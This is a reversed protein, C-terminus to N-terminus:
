AIIAGPLAMAVSELQLRCSRFAGGFGSALVDVEKVGGTGTLVLPPAGGYGPQPYLVFARDNPLQYRVSATATFPRDDAMVRRADEIASDWPGLLALRRGTLGAEEYLDVWGDEIRTIQAAFRTARFELCKLVLPATVSAPRIPALFHYVAYVVLQQSGDVYACAGADMNCWNGSTEFRRSDVFAMFTDRLQRPQSQPSLPLQELAVRFLDARNEGPDLPNPQPERTNEFGVLYLSESGGPGAEWLFDMSQFKRHFRHQPPPFFQAVMSWGTMGAGGLYLDLHYAATIGPPAVDSDSWVALILRGDPLPTVACAGAKFRPRVVEHAPLLVPREPDAMDLFVIRSDGATNELPVVAVNGVLSFGGPHWYQGDIAHYAVLRDINAPNRSRMLNSGWPGPDPARSGLRCVLLDSRSTKYPFSGTVLLHNGLRQIGQFHNNLGAKKHWVSYRKDAFTAPFGDMVAIREGRANLSRFQGAVDRLISRQVM